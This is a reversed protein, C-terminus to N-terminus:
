RGCHGLIEFSFPTGQKARAGKSVITFVEAHGCGCATGWPPLEMRSAVPIQCAHLGMAEFKRAWYHTVDVFTDWRVYADGFSGVSIDHWHLLMGEYGAKVAQWYANNVLLCSAYHEINIMVPSHTIVAEPNTELILDALQKVSPPHEYATLITPVDPAVGRPLECGYRVEAVAGGERFYHRQPHDLHIPVTGFMRAATAAELKRQPEIVHHPPSTYEVSGDLKLYNWNGSMNNTAMVYVVEYGVDRYKLLTGGVTCEIDDAHAGVAMLTRNTMGIGRENKLDSM